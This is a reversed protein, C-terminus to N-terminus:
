SCRFCSSTSLIQSTQFPSIGLAGSLIHNSTAKYFGSFARLVSRFDSTCPIITHVLPLMKLTMKPIDNPSKFYQNGFHAGWPLLMLMTQSSTLLTFEQARGRPTPAWRDTNECAGWTFRICPSPWSGSWKWPSGLHPLELSASTSM